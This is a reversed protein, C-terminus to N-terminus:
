KLKIELKIISKQPSTERSAAFSHDIIIDTVIVDYNLQIASILKSITEEAKEAEAEKADKQFQKSKIKHLILIRLQDPSSGLTVECFRSRM